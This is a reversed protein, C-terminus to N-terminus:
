GTQHATRLFALPGVQANIPSGTTTTGTRDEVTVIAIEHFTGVIVTEAAYLVHARPDVTPSSLTGSFSAVVNSGGTAPDVREVTNQLGGRLVFLSGRSPDVAMGTIGQGISPGADLTATTTDLVYLRSTGLVAIAVYLTHSKPALVVLTDFSSPAPLVAVDTETGSSPDVKVVTQSACTFCDTVGWVEHTAPDVAISHALPRQLPPSAVISANSPDIRALRWIISGGSRPGPCVICTGVLATLEHSRGDPALAAVLPNPGVSGLSVLPNLTGAAPAISALTAPFTIGYLVGDSAVATVPTAAGAGAAVAALAFAVLHRSARSLM